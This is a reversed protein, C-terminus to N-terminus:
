LTILKKTYDLNAKSNNEYGLTYINTALIDKELMSSYIKNTNKNLFKKVSTIIELHRNKKSIKSLLQKGNETMGLVRIYPKLKNNIVLDEKTINFLAYLLIRNIRTLTYRKSKILKILDLLTNCSNAAEKIKFELGETVDALDAIESISMTRLKFLIEKEFKEISPVFQGYKVRNYIIKSAFSPIFPSIDKNNIFLNRIATSSAFSDVTDLSNYDEGVRKITMPTIKSKSKRLAKLYEIGLINNPCSLINAYKRIDNLYMLVANERAKPFSLGNDLEHKLISVYQPPESLLVDAIDNLLTIDGCESGFSLTTDLRLSNLIKIAGEAFTEASAISYILPLEIVLDVGYRLAMEARAWKDVLAVDGREVFNGSMICVTFDPKVIEKSKQIQYLHGNHFPNYEAIIGLIQSM